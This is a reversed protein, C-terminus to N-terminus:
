TATSTFRREKTIVHCRAGGGREIEGRLAELRDARRAV